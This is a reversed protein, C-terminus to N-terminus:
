FNINHRLAYYFGQPHDEWFFTRKWNINCLEWQVKFIGYWELCSLIPSFLWSYETFFYLYIWLLAGILIKFFEDIFVHIFHEVFVLFTHLTTRRFEQTFIFLLIRRVPSYVTGIMEEILAIVLLFCAIFITLCLYIILVTLRWFLYFPLLFPLLLVWYFLGFHSVPLYHIGEDSKVLGSLFAKFMEYKTRVPPPPQPPPYQFDAEDDLDPQIQPIQQSENIKQLSKRELYM